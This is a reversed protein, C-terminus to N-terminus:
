NDRRTGSVTSYGVEIAIGEYLLSLLPSILNILNQFQSFFSTQCENTDSSWPFYISLPCNVFRVWPQWCTQTIFILTQILIITCRTLASGAKSSDWIGTTQAETARSGIRTGITTGPFVICKVWTNTGKDGMHSILISTWARPEPVTWGQWLLWKPLSGYTSAIERWRTKGRQKSRSEM